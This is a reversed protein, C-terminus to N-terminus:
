FRREPNEIQRIKRTTLRKRRVQFHELGLGPAHRNTEASASREGCIGPRQLAGLFNLLDNFLNSRAFPISGEVYLKPLQREVVSSRGRLPPM